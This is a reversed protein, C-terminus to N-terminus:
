LIQNGNCGGCVCIMTEIKWEKPEEEPKFWYLRIYDDTDCDCTRQM